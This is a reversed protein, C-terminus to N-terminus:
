KLGEYVQVIESTLAIGQKKMLEDVTEKLSKEQQKLLDEKQRLYYLLRDPNAASFYKTNNKVIHSVLGRKVLRELITYVKSISVGAKDVIPGSTSEGLETLALYVKIEGETLGLERLPELNM